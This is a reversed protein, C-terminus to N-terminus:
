AAGTPLTVRFVTGQGEVSRVEVQGSCVEVCKRLVYLGIGTGKFHRVNTARHFPQFIYPIESAPIGVGEDEVEITFRGASGALRLRVPRDPPGYKSANDLLNSVIHHLLGQDAVVEEPAGLNEVQVAPRDPFALQVEVALKRCFDEIRIPEPRVSTEGADLRGMVLLKELILSLRRIERKILTFYSARKAPELREYFDELLESANLIGALPTRFEHSVLTVFTTKLRVLERAEELNRLTSEEAKLRATIDEMTAVMQDSRGSADAVPVIVMRCWFTEGDKRRNPLNGEYVEGRLITAWLREYEAVPVLGSKLIRPTRGVVEGAAYGTVRSFQPNVHQIIGSRDTILIAVPSFEVARQLIRLHADDRARRLALGMASAAVRLIEEEGPEWLREHHCDDFGVLGWTVNHIRIPVILLSKISQPDLLAREEAPFDKVLGAVAKGQELLLRWRRYDPDMRLDQLSPNDIQPAVTDRYWEYRQSTLAEGSASRHFEFIYARDAGVAGAMMGLVQGVRETLGSDELLLALGEALTATLPTM